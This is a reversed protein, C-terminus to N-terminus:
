RSMISQCILFESGGHNLSVYAPINKPPYLGGENSLRCGEGEGIKETKKGTKGTKLPLNPNWAQKYRGLM